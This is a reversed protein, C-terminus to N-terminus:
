GGLQDMRERLREIAPAVRREIEDIREEAHVNEIEKEIQGIKEESRFEGIQREIELIRRHSDQQFDRLEAEAKALRRAFTGDDLKAKLKRIAAEHQEIERDIRRKLDDSASSRASRLNGIASQHSGIEGQLSGREGQISGIKGQLSGEQGHIAGIRGHLAGIQGQISGIQGQLSGVYGRIEGIDRLAAFVELAEKL